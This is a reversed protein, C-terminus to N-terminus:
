VWHEGRGDILSLAGAKSTKLVITIYYMTRNKEIVIIIRLQSVTFFTVNSIDLQRWDYENKKINLSLVFFPLFPICFDLNNKDGNLIITVGNDKWYLYWASPM